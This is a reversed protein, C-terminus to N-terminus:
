EHFQTMQNYEVNWETRKPRITIVGSEVDHVETQYQHLAMAIVAMYVEKNIGKTNLGDQLIVATKKGVEITIEVTKVGAKIPQLKAVKKVAARHRMALGFVYFFAFLLALCSFVIGMSLVTIGLGYPDERKLKEVKSEDAEITNSIGPTVAEPAKTQWQKAGDTRRAYSMNPALAPVTISDVLDTANGDYLGIWLGQGKAVPAALHMSGRVPDSGLFFVVHQKASLNTREERDPLAYMRSIREPVSMQKQLVSRDTAIYMGRINYTTFSNNAIEVWAHRDGYEDQIGATNDTMVENLRISKHMQASATTACLALTAGLLLAFKTMIPNQQIKLTIM